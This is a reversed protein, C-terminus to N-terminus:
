YYSSSHSREFSANLKQVIFLLRARVFWSRPFVFCLPNIMSTHYIALLLRRTHQVLAAPESFYCVVCVCCVCVYICFFPSEVGGGGARGWSPISGLLLPDGFSRKLIMPVFVRSDVRGVRGVGRGRRCSELLLLLAQPWRPWKKYRPEYMVFVYAKRSRPFVFCACVTCVSCYYVVCVAITDVTIPLPQTHQIYELVVVTRTRVHRLWCCGGGGGLKLM